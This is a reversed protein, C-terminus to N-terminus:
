PNAKRPRGPPSPAMAEVDEPWHYMRRGAIMQGIGRIRALQSARMKTYGHYAAVQPGTWWEDSIRPRAPRDKMTCPQLM